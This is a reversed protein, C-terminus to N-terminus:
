DSNEHVEHPGFDYEVRGPDLREYDRRSAAEGALAPVVFTESAGALPM